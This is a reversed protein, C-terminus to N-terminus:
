KRSIFMASLIGYREESNNFDYEERDRLSGYMAKKNKEFKEQSVLEFEPAFEEVIDWSIEQPETPTPKHNVDTLLLFTGGSKLVRKIESITRKLDEVHDISNFSCVIDFYSDGFPIEESGSAVYKMEHKNAGLKLYDEALPDLGIREKANNAWELSGRPGCGIDLVVKTAYFDKSLGFHITYFPEYHDNALTGDSFERKKWYRLENYEKWKTPFFKGAIPTIVKRLLPRIM